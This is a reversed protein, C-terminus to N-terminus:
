GGRSVGIGYRRQLQLKFCLAIVVIDSDIESIERYGEAMLAEFEKQKIM